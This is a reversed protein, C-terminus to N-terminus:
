RYLVNAVVDNASPATNDNDAVNVTARVSIGNVFTVGASFDVQSMSTAPIEVTLVPTATNDPATAQDYFKIFRAAAANNTIIWAGIKGAGAKIVQGTTGLNLNRWPTVWETLTVPNAFSGSPM